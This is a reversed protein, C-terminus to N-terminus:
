RGNRAEKAALRSEKLALRATIADPSIRWQGAIQQAPLKGSWVLHYTRNISIGLRRASENVGPWDLVELIQQTNRSM